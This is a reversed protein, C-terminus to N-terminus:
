LGLKLHDEIEFTTQKILFLIRNLQFVIIAEEKNSM